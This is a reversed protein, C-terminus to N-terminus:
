LDMFESKNVKIENCIRSIIPRWLIKGGHLNPITIKFNFKNKLYSHKWWSFPWDFWLKQLKRILEKRTIPKLQWM